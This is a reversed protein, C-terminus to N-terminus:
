EVKILKYRFKLGNAESALMDWKSTCGATRIERITWQLGRIAGAWLVARRAPKAVPCSHNNGFPPEFRRGPTGTGRTM